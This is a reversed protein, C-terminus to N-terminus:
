GFRPGYKEIRSECDLRRSGLHVETCRLRLSHLSLFLFLVENVVLALTDHTKGFMHIDHVIFFGELGQCLDIVEPPTRKPICHICSM